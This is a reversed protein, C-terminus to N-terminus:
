ALLLHHNAALAAALVCALVGLALRKWLGRESADRSGVYRVIWLVCAAGV